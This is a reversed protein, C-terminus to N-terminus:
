KKSISKCPVGAYTGDSALDRIIVSGAGVLVRDQITINNAIVTGSGIFCETGVQVNGNLMTGTSIHTHDGIKVDHEINAATNIICNAGIVADANVTVRHHIVSGEGVAAYSSVMANGSIVTAISANQKKLLEYLRKRPLASKIQGITILFHYGKSIWQDIEEDTGIVKYDLVNTGVMDVRDLIGCIEWQGSSHIVEICSKCHGGGGILILPQKPM